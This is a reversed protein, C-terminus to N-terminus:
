KVDLVEKKRAPLQVGNALAAKAAAEGTVCDQVLKGDATKTVVSYSMTDAGLMISSMGNPLNVVSAPAVTASTAAPASAANSLAGIEEATAQRLQGTDADKVVVLGAQAPSPQPTGPNAASKRAAPEKGKKESSTQTTATQAAMSLASVFFIAPAIGIMRKM